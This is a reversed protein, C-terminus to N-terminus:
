VTLFFFMCLNELSRSHSLIVISEMQVIHVNVPRFHLLLLLLLLVYSFVHKLFFTLFVRREVFDIEDLCIAM